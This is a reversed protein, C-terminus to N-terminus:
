AQEAERITDRAYERNCIEFAARDKRAIDEDVIKAKHAKIHGYREWNDEVIDLAAHLDNGYVIALCFGDGEIWWHSWGIGIEPFRRAWEERLIKRVHEM